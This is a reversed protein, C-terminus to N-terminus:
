LKLIKIGSFKQYKNKLRKKFDKISVGNQYEYSFVLLIDNIPVRCRSSKFYNLAIDEVQKKYAINLLVDINPIIKKQLYCFYDIPYDKEHYEEPLYLKEGVKTKGNDLLLCNVKEGANFFKGENEVRRKFTNVWYTELKYSDNINIQIYLEKEDVKGTLLLEFEKLIYNIVDKFEKEEFIMRLVKEYVKKLFKCKDRRALANGKSNIKLEGNKNRVYEGNKDILVYSYCKKTICLIDMAKEFEMKLPEPFLPPKDEEILKGINFYDIDGKKCGNIFQALANGIRDCEKPDKINMDIMCSDTDGYVVSGGLNKEIKTFVENILKKGMATVSKAGDMLPLKGKEGTGIFGYISNASIKLGGQRADLVVHTLKDSDTKNEIREIVKMEKKIKNRQDILGRELKPILGERVEKKVFAYKNEIINPPLINRNTKKKKQKNNHEENLDITETIINLENEPYDEVNEKPVLTTYCINFARMISPYLSAFDLTIVNRKLCPNPEFVFAGKYGKGRYKEITTIAVDDYVAINYLQNSCRIQQGRTFTESITVLVINAMEIQSIWINLTDFLEIVLESDQICYLIVKYMEYLAKERIEIDSSQIDSYIKFMEKASIEHKTKGIFHNAVFGLGYSDLKMHERKILPFLDIVIRGAIDLYQFRNKGYAKSEMNQIMFKVPINLLLSSDKWTQNKRELRTNLYYYDFGLINYGTIITPDEEIIIDCFKDILDKETEVKIIISNPDEDKVKYDSFIICYKKRTEVKKYTQIICSIMYVVDKSNLPEPFAGHIHSYTEIDFCLIKPYTIWTKTEELPIVVLDKYSCLYENEIKSIKEDQPVKKCKIKFWQCTKLKLATLFKSVSTMMRHEFPEFKFYAGSFFVDMRIGLNSKEDKKFGNELINAVYYMDKVSYFYLSVFKVKNDSHYYLNYKLDITYPESFEVKTILQIKNVFTEINANTWFSSKIYKKVPGNASFITYYSPLRIKMRPFFDEFLLLFRESNRNFAWCQIQFKLGDSEKFDYSHCIIEEM